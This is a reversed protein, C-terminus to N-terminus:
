SEKLIITLTPHNTKIIELWAQHKSVNKTHIHLAELGKLMYLPANEVLTDTLDLRRLHCWKPSEIMMTIFDDDIDEGVLRVEEAWDIMTFGERHAFPFFRAQAYVDPFHKLFNRSAGFLTLHATDSFRLIGKYDGHKKEIVITEYTQDPYWEYYERHFFPTPVEWSLFSGDPYWYTDWCVNNKLILAERRCYGEDFEYGIGSFSSEKML